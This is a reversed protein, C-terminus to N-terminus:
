CFVRYGIHINVDENIRYDIRAKLQGAFKIVGKGLMIM